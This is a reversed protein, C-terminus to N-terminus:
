LRSAHMAQARSHDEPGHRGVADLLDCDARWAAADRSKDAAGAREDRSQPKRWSKAYVALEQEAHGPPLALRRAGRGKTIGAADQRQLWPRVRRRKNYLAYLHATRM